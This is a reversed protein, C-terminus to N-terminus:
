KFKGLWSDAIVAGLIPTFYCLSSFAHYVATSLDKDWKLYTLFYLTLVAPLPVPPSLSHCLGPRGAVCLLCVWAAGQSLTSALIVAPDDVARQFLVLPPNRVAGHHRLRRVSTM